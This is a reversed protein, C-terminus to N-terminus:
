ERLTGSSLDIISLCAARVSGPGSQARGSRINDARSVHLNKELAALTDPIDLLEHYLPPQSAVFVFWDARMFPTRSSTANAIARTLGDEPQIGYPYHRAIREWRATNWGIDRLDLRYVTRAKDVAVRDRICM